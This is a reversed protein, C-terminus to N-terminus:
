RRKAGVPLALSREEAWKLQIPRCNSILETAEHGLERLNRSYADTTGFSRDLLAWHQQEYTADALSPNAGYHDALFSEYCTDVIVVKM